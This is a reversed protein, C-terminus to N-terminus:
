AIEFGNLGAKRWYATRATIKVNKLGGALGSPSGSFALGAAARCKVAGAAGSVSGGWSYAFSKKRGTKNTGGLRATDKATRRIQAVGASLFVVARFM